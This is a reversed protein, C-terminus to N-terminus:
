LFTVLLHTFWVSLSIICCALIDDSLCLVYEALLSKVDASSDASIITTQSSGGSVGNGNDGDHESMVADTDEKKVTMERKARIRELVRRRLGSSQSAAVRM